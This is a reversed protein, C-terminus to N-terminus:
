FPFDDGGDEVKKAIKINLTPKGDKGQNKWLSISLKKDSPIASYDIQKKGDVMKSVKALDEVTNLTGKFDPDSPSKKEDNPWLKGQYKDQYSAM